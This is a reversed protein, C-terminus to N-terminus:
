KFEKAMSEIDKDDIKWPERMYLNYGSENGIAGLEQQLQAFTPKLIKKAEICGLIILALDKGKKGKVMNQLKDMTALKEQESGLLKNHLPEVSKGKPRGAKAINESSVAKPVEVDAIDNECVEDDVPYDGSISKLAVENALKGVGYTGYYLYDCFPQIRKMDEESFIMNVPRISFDCMRNAAEQLLWDRLNIFDAYQPADEDIASCDLMRVLGWLTTIQSILGLIPTSETVKLISIIKNKIAQPKDTNDKIYERAVKLMMFIARTWDKGFTVEDVKYEQLEKLFTSFSGHLGYVEVCLFEDLSEDELPIDVKSSFIGDANELEKEFTSQVADQFFQMMPAPAAIGINLFQWGKENTNNQPNM